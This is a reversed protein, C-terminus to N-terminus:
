ISLAGLAFLNYAYHAGTAGELGLGKNGKGRIISFVFGLVILFVVTSIPAPNGSMFAVSAHFVGFLINSIFDGLGAAFPLFYRFVLEEIYAKVFGHLLGFGLALKVAELSALEAATFVKGILLLSVIVFMLFFGALFKSLGSVGSTFTPIKRGFPLAVIIFLIFYITLTTRVVEAYSGYIWEANIWLFAQIILIILGLSLKSAKLRYLLGLPNM